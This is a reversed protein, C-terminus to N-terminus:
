HKRVKRRTKRRAGHKRTPPKGFRRTLIERLTRKGKEKKELDKYESMADAFDESAYDPEYKGKSSSLFSFFGHFIADSKKDDDPNGPRLNMLQQVPGAMIYPPSILKSPRSVLFLITPPM